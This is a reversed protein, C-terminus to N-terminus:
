IFNIQVNLRKKFCFFAKLSTIRVFPNVEFFLDLLLFVNKKLFAIKIPENTSSVCSKKSSNKVVCYYSSRLFISLVFLMQLFAEQGQSSFNKRKNKIKKCKVILSCAEVLFFDAGLIKKVGVFFKQWMRGEGEHLGIDIGSNALVVGSFIPYILM